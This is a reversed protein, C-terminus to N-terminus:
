QIPQTFNTSVVQGTFRDVAVEIWYRKQGEVVFKEIGSANPPFRGSQATLDLLFNWTRTQTVQGLGRIVAEREVKTTGLDSTSGLTDLLSVLEARNRIPNASTATVIKQAIAAATAQDIPQPNALGPFRAIGTLLSTLIEPYPTNISIRGAVLPPDDTEGTADLDAITFYDLLAADASGPSFLDLTKWPQDRYAFGMEGVTRFPRNLIIPRATSALGAGPATRAAPNNNLPVFFGDARRTTGDPDPAYSHPVTSAQDNKYLLGPFYINSDVPLMISFAGSGNSKGSWGGNNVDYGKSVNVQYQAPYGSQSGTLQSRTLTSLFGQGTTLGQDNNTEGGKSGGWRNSRPEPHNVRLSNLGIFPAAQPYGLPTNQNVFDLEIETGIGRNWGTLSPTDPFGSFSSYPKWQGNRQYELAIVLNGPKQHILTAVFGVDAQTPRPGPIWEFQNFSNLLFGNANLASSFTPDVANRAYGPSRFSDADLPSIPNLTEGAFDKRYGRNGGTYSWGVTTGQKIRAQSSITGSPVRVRIANPRLSNPSPNPSPQHPNWLEFLMWQEYKAGPNQEVDRISPMSGSATRTIDTSRHIKFSIESLYPLDEIGYFGVTNVRITTPFSDADWQDILNAGIRIIQLDANMDFLFQPASMDFGALAQQAQASAAYPNSSGLSGPYIAAKLMEFFNPERDEAEVEALTKIRFEVLGGDLIGDTYDWSGEAANWVLGFSDEIDGDRSTDTSNNVKNELWNIRELPFRKKVADVNEALRQPANITQNAYTAYASPSGTEDPFSEITPDYSPAEIDLALHTLKELLTEDWGQKQWFRVLQNRNLFPHDGENVLRFGSQAPKFEPPVAPKFLHDVYGAADNALAPTRYQLIKDIQEQTLGLGTLNALALHGGLERTAVPVGAPAGALNIDMLGGIDYLVFAFRGLVQDAGGAGHKSKDFALPEVGGSQTVYVWAPLANGATTGLRPGRTGFWYDVDLTRGAVSPTSTAPSAPSTVSRGGPYLAPDTASSMKVLNRGSSAPIGAKVPMQDSATKPLYAEPATSPVPTSRAPDRVEATLQGEIFEVASRALEGAKIESNSSASLQVATQSRLLFAVILFTLLVLIALTIVLAVGDDRHRLLCPPSKKM